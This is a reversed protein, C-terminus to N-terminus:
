YPLEWNMEVFDMQSTAFILRNTLEIGLSTALLFTVLTSASSDRNLSNIVMVATEPKLKKTRSETLLRVIHAITLPTLEETFAKPYTEALHRLAAMTPESPSGIPIDKANALASLLLDKSAKKKLPDKKLCLDIWEISCAIYFRESDRASSVADAILRVHSILTEVHGPKPRIPENPRLVLRALDEWKYKDARKVGTLLPIGFSQQLRVAADVSSKLTENTIWFLWSKEFIPADLHVGCKNGINEYYDFHEQAVPHHSLVDFRTLTLVESSYSRHRASEKVWQDNIVLIFLDVSSSIKTFPAAAFVKEMERETAPTSVLVPRRKNMRISGRACLNLWETSNVALLTQRSDSSTM